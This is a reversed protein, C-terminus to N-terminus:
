EAISLVPEYHNQNTNCLYIIHQDFPRTAMRHNPRFVQWCWTNNSGWVSYVAIPTRLLSAMAGIEIDTAWQGEERTKSTKSYNKRASLNDIVGSNLEMFEFLKKKVVKHTISNYSNDGSTISCISRYFCSGCGLTPLKQGPSANISLRKPSSAYNLNPGTVPIDLIASAKTCWQDTPPKWAITVASSTRSTLCMRKQPSLHDIDEQVQLRKRKSRSTNVPIAPAEDAPTSSPPNDASLSPASNPENNSRYLKLQNRPISTKLPDKKDPKRIYYGGKESISHIVYPDSWPRQEMKGGKRDHRRNNWKLVYAGVKLPTSRSIRKDYDRKQRDQALQINDSAQQRELDRKQKAAKEAASSDLAKYVIDAVKNNSKMIQQFQDENVDDLIDPLPNDLQSSGSSNSELEIFLKAQRGFM